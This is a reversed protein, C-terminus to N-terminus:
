SPTQYSHKHKGHFTKLKQYMRIWSQEYLHEPLDWIFGISNLEQIRDSRLANKRYSCRQKFVWQGLSKNREDHTSVIYHGNQAKFACLEDFRKEWSMRKDVNKEKPFVFGISDMRQRRDSSLANKKHLVKQQSVWQGLSKNHEDHTSVNCHGHQAKFLYLADLMKEWSPKEEVNKEEASNPLSPGQTKRPSQRPMEPSSM